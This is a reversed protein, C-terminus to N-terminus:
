GLGIVINTICAILALLPIVIATLVGLTNKFLSGGKAHPGICSSAESVAAIAFWILADFFPKGTFVIVERLAESM